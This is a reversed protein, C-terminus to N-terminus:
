DTLGLLQEGQAAWEACLEHQSELMSSACSKQCGVLMMKPNARCEGALAWDSCENHEDAKQGWAPAILLLGLLVKMKEQLNM